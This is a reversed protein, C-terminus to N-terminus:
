AKTIQNEFNGNQDKTITQVVDNAKTYLLTKGYMYSVSQMYEGTGYQFAFCGNYSSVLAWDKKIDNGSNLNKYPDAMRPDDFGTLVKELGKTKLQSILAKDINRNIETSNAPTTEVKDTSSSPVPINEVIPNQNLSVPNINSIGIM